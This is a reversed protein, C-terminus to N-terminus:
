LIKTMYLGEQAYGIKKYYERTGIASIVAVKKYGKKVAIKEAEEMLRKGLGRHQINKSEKIKQSKSEKSLGEVLGYSHVERIIAAGKLEKFLMKEERDPLRLRLLALVKGENEYSLFIEEGGM